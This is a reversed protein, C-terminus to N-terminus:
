VHRVQQCNKSQIQQSIACFNNIYIEQLVRFLSSEAGDWEVSQLDGPLDKFKVLNLIDLDSLFCKKCLCLLCQEIELNLTFLM